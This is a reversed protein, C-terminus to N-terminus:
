YIGPILKSTSARYQQFSPLHGYKKENSKELMPIGSLGLLLSTIWIPSIITAWEWGILVPICSIFVGLWVLIEGAYNPFRVISYLGEAMFKGNNGPTTRFKFKQADAITEVLLGFLFIASGIPLGVSLLAKDVQEPTANLAAVVPLLILWISVGQILWFGGFRWWVPRIEDFRHDRGKTLVRKFLYGGLRISWLVPMAALLLRYPHSADGAWFLLTLTILFFTAAYTLDTLKDTQYKYAIIFVLINVALSFLFSLALPNSLM